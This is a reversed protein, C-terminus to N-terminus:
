PNYHGVNKTRYRKADYDGFCKAFDIWALCAAMGAPCGINRAKASQRVSDSGQGTINELACERDPACEPKRWIRKKDAKCAQGTNQAM